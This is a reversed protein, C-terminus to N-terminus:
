CRVALFLFLVLQLFLFPKIIESSERMNWLYVTIVLFIKKALFLTSSSSWRKLWLQNSFTVQLGTRDWCVLVTFHIIHCKEQYSKPKLLQCFDCLADSNKISSLFSWFVNAINKQEINLYKETKGTIKSTLKPEKQVKILRSVVSSSM